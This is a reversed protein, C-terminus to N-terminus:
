GKVAGLMIGNAFYKQLFPYILLIPFIAVFAIAMRISVQPIQMAGGSSISSHASLAQIDQIMRNLLAQVSLMGSDSIYYLGNTWDNWYALWTFLGITVLIPKSLPLAIKAYITLYGAGDIKAAEYIDNPINTTFFTRALIVNFAGMLLNPLLYALLTNKIHFTNTWMIYSPVLGGSFLMTFFVYFNLARRGPLDKLSLPFAMLTTLLLSLATGIVTVLITIGYARFITSANQLIYRYAGLSFKEPFFSYGNVVLTNEETISSMFLLVMPLVTILTVGILVINIMTQYATQGKTRIM